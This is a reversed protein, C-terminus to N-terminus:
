RQVSNYTPPLEITEAEDTPGSGNEEPLEGGDEHLVFNVPRLRGGQIGGQSKRVGSGAGSGGTGSPEAGAVLQDLTSVVSGRGPVDSMGMSAEGNAEMDNHSQTDRSPGVVFPEPECFEPPHTPDPHGSDSLLDVAAHQQRRRRRIYFLALLSGITAAAVGGVVAGAIVGANSKSGGGGGGAGGGGGGGAGAGGGGGGGHRNSDSKGGSISSPVAVTSSSSPKSNNLCTSNSSDAVVTTVSRGASPGLADMAVLLVTTGAPVSPIWQLRSVNGSLPVASSTDIESSQSGPVILLITFKRNTPPILLLTLIYYKFNYGVRSRRAMGSDRASM